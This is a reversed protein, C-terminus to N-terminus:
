QHISPSRLCSRIGYPVNISSGVSLGIACMKTPEFADHYSIRSSRGCYSSGRTLTPGRTPHGASCRRLGRARSHSGDPPTRPRLVAVYGTRQSSDAQRGLSSGKTLRAFEIPALGCTATSLPDCGSQLQLPPARRRRADLTTTAAHGHRALESAGDSPDTRAPSCIRGKLHRDAHAASFDAARSKSSLIGLNYGLFLDRRLTAPAFLPRSRRRLSPRSLMGDVRAVQDGLPSSVDIGVVDLDRRQLHLSVRGASCGLDLVVVM